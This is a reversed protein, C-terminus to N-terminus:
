KVDCYMRTLVLRVVPILILVVNDFRTLDWLTFHLCSNLTIFSYVMTFLEGFSLWEQLINHLFVFNSLVM